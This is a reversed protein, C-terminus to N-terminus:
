YEVWYLFISLENWNFKTNNKKFNQKYIISM